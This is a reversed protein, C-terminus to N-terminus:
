IISEYKRWEHTIKKEDSLAYKTLLRDIQKLILSEKTIPTNDIWEKEFRCVECTQSTGCFPCHETQM